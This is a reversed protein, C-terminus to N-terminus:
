CFHGRPVCYSGTSVVCIRTPKGLPLPSSQGQLRSNGLGFQQLVSFREINDTGGTHVQASGQGLLHSFCPCTRFIQSGLCFLNSPLETGPFVEQFSQVFEGIVHHPISPPGKGCVGDFCSVGHVLKCFVQLGACVREFLCSASHAHQLTSECLRCIAGFGGGFLQREHPLFTSLCSRYGLEQLSLHVTKTRGDIDQSVSQPRENVGELSPL